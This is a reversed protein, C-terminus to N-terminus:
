DTISTNNYEYTFIFFYTIIDGCQGATPAHMFFQQKHM